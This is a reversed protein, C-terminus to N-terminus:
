GENAQPCFWNMLQTWDQFGRLGDQQKHMNASFSHTDENKHYKHNVYPKIPVYYGEIAIPCLWNISQPEIGRLADQQIAKIEKCRELKYQNQPMCTLRWNYYLIISDYILSLCGGEFCVLLLIKKDIILITYGSNWRLCGCLWMRCFFFAVVVKCEYVEVHFLWLIM